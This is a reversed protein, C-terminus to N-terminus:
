SVYNNFVNASVAVSTPGPFIRNIIHSAAGESYTLFPGGGNIDDTAIIIVQPKHWVKKIAM